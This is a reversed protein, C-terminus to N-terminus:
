PHIPFFINQIILCSINCKNYISKQLRISRILKNLLFMQNMKFNPFFYLLSLCKRNWTYLKEVLKVSCLFFSIKSPWVGWQGTQPSVKRGPSISVCKCTSNSFSSFSETLYSNLWTLGITFVEQYPLSSGLKSLYETWWKKFAGQLKTTLM